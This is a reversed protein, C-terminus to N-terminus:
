LPLCCSSFLYDKVQKFYIICFPFQLNRCFCNRLYSSHSQQVTLMMREVGPAVDQCAAKMQVTDAEHVITKTTERPPTLRLGSPVDAVIQGITGAGSSLHDHIHFLRHFSFQCPFGFYESFVHGFAVEDVVYGVNGSRQEFRPWRSPLRSGYRLHLKM